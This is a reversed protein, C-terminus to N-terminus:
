EGLLRQRPQVRRAAERRDPRQHFLLPDTRSVVRDTLTRAAARAADLRQPPRPHARRAVLLVPDLRHRRRHARVAAVPVTALAAVVVPRRAHLDVDCEVPEDRGTRARRAVDVRATVVFRRPLVVSNRQRCVGRVVSGVRRQSHEAHRARRSEGLVDGRPLGQGRAKASRARCTGRRVAAPHRVPHLARPVRRVVRRRALRQVGRIMALNVDPDPGQNLVQGSFGTWNPFNLGALQGGASMDRVREHVDYCGPRMHEYRLPDVNFMEPAKGAVANLGLNRGRIEGYYWQQAGGDEEVVRPARDRYKAPVHADFMDAPECIHDDVSILIFDDAATM